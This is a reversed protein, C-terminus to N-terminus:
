DASAPRVTVRDAYFAIHGAIADVERYTAPYTWAVIQQSSDGGYVYYSAEGKFPCTTRLDVATLQEQEVDEAPFYVVPEYGSEDLILARQSDALLTEGSTVRWRCDASDLTIRHEPSKVFGPANGLSQPM